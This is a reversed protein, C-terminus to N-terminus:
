WELRVSIPRERRGNLRQLAAPLESAPIGTEFLRELLPDITEWLWQAYAAYDDGDSSAMVTLEKRHFVPPLLLTGWNGDSLVVVRGGPQLKALLDQFGEPSASCELAFPVETGDAQGPSWVEAAGLQKALEQREVVPECVHVTHGRRALNFVSLLGLLGAGTVLVLSGPPLDLKRVGKMSEEGLIVALAALDSVSNPVAILQETPILAHSSHGWTGVVRRGQWSAPVDAGLNRVTGTSQYGLTQVAGSHGARGLYLSLESAVSVASSRTEVMVEGTAPAPLRLTELRLDRPGHLRWCRALTM